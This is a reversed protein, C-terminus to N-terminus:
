EGNPIWGPLTWGIEKTGYPTAPMITKEIKMAFLTRYVEMKAEQEKISLATCIDLFKRPQHEKLLALIRKKLNKM